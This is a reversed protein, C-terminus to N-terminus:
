RRLRTSKPLSNFSLSMDQQQAPMVAKTTPPNFRPDTGSPFTTQINRAHGFVLGRVAEPIEEDLGPTV